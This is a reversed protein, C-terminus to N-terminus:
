IPILIGGFKSHYRKKYVDPIWVTGDSFDFIFGGMLVVAHHKKSSKGHRAWWTVALIGKDLHFDPRRKYRMPYNLRKAVRMIDKFYMGTDHPRNCDKSTEALVDEYSLGTISALSAVCCDGAARQIQVRIVPDHSM